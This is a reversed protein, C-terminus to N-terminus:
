KYAALERVLTLVFDTGAIAQSPAPELRQAEPKAPHVLNRYGRLVHSTACTADPIAGLDKAVDVMTSLTWGSIAGKTAHPCARAKPEHRLLTDLLAAEAISGLLMVAAKPAGDATLRAAEELDRKAVALLSADKMFALDLHRLRSGLDEKRIRQYARPKRFHAKWKGFARLGLNGPSYQVPRQPSSYRLVCAEGLYVTVDNANFDVRIPYWCGTIIDNIHADHAVAAWGPQRLTSEYPSRQAVVFKFDWGGLGAFSYLESDSYRFLLHANTGQPVVEDVMIEASMVGNAIRIDSLCLADKNADDLADYGDCDFEQEDASIAWRGRAIQWTGTLNLPVLEDTEGAVMMSM